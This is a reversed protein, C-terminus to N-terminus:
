LIESIDISLYLNSNNGTDDTKVAHILVSKNSFRIEEIIGVKYSLDLIALGEPHKTSILAVVSQTIHSGGPNTSRKIGTQINLLYGDQEIGISKWDFIDM